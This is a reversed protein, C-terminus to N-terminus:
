SKKVWPSKGANREQRAEVMDQQIITIPLKDDLFRQIIEYQDYLSLVVHCGRCFYYPDGGTAWLYEGPNGCKACAPKDM